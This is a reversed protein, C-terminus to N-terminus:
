PKEWVSEGTAENTYYTYGENTKKVAWIVAGAPREWTSEGTTCSEYYTYNNGDETVKALYALPPSSRVSTAPAAVAAAPPPPPATAKAPAKAPAPVPAPAPAAAGAGAGGPEDLSIEGSFFADKKLKALVRERTFDAPETSQIDGVCGEMAKYVAGKLMSAKGKAIGSVNEGISTFFFTKRVGGAWYACIGFAVDSQM